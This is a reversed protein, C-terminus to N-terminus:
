RRMLAAAGAGAACGDDGVDRARQAGQRDTHDGPREGELAPQRAFWASSPMASSRSSTSVRMTMGLSRSSDMESRWTLTRSAKLDASWTRSEPTWPM